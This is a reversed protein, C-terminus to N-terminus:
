TNRGFQGEILSKARVVAAPDLTHRAPFDESPRTADIIMKATLGDCNSPDLIAGMGNRPIDIDQDAQMRHFSANRIGTDPDKAIVIGNTVYRGADCDFHLEIPLKNLDVVEGTMVVYHIPGRDRLVPAIRQDGLVGWDRILRETPVGLGLAYRRRDGFVNCFLPMAYGAVADFWLIPSRGLREMEMAVATIDNNLAVQDGTRWIADPDEAAVQDIFGRPTVDANTESM